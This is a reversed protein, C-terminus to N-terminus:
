QRHYLADYFETQHLLFLLNCEKVLSASETLLHVANGTVIDTEADLLLLYDTSHFAKRDRLAPSNGKGGDKGLVTLNEMAM